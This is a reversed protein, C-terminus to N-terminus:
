EIPTDDDEKVIEADLAPRQKGHIRELWEEETMGAPLIIVPKHDVEVEYKKPQCAVIMRMLAMPDKLVEDAFRLQFEPQNQLILMYELSNRLLHEVSLHKTGYASTAKALQESVNAAMARSIMRHADESAQAKIKAKEMRAESVRNMRAMDRYELRESEKDVRPHIASCVLVM